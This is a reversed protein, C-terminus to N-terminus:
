DNKDNGKARLILGNFVNMVLDNFWSCAEKCIFIEDNTVEFDSSKRPHTIRNRIKQALIFNNWLTSGTDLDSEIKLYKEIMSFTFKINDPLKVFKTQEKIKGNNKLNYSKDSLISYEAISIKKQTGDLTPSGLITQKLIWISGEIFSFLNRIYARRTFQNDDIELAKEAWHADDLMPM